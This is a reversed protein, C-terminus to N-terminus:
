NVIIHLLITKTDESNTCKMFKHLTTNLLPPIHSVRLDPYAQIAIELQQLLPPNQCVQLILALTVGFIVDHHFFSSLCNSLDQQPLCLFEYKLDEILDYMSQKWEVSETVLHLKCIYTSLIRIYHTCSIVDSKSSANWIIKASTFLGEIM